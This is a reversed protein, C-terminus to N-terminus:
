FIFVRLIYNRYEIITTKLFIFLEVYVQIYPQANLLKEIMAPKDFDTRM